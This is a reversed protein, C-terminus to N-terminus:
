VVKETLDTKFWKMSLTKLTGDQHLEAIAKNVAALFEADPPGTKDLAAALPAQYIPDDIEVVPQGEAIAADATAKATLWGEFDHRGAAWAQACLADSEFTVVKV